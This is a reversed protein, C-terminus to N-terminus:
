EPNLGFVEERFYNEVTERIAEKTEGFEASDSDSNADNHSFNEPDSQYEDYLDDLFEEGETTLGCKIDGSYDNFLYIYKDVKQLLDDILEPTVLESIRAEAFESFTENNESSDSSDWNDPSYVDEDESDEDSNNCTSQAYVSELPGTYESVVRYKCIRLKQCSSDHPVSVVDKPDIEVIVIHGRRSSQFDSVYQISGAHLGASCGDEPNDSIENRNTEITEGIGNYIHGYSDAKGQLLTLKGATFSYYNADVRKYALFNGDNTIPINKHELFKYLQQVSNRSPNQLLKNTFNVMAVIPLNLKAFEVIKKAVYNDLLTGKYYVNDGKVRIDGVVFGGSVEEPEPASPVPANAQAAIRLVEGEDNNRIADLLSDAFSSQRSVLVVQNNVNVTINTPTIIYSLM